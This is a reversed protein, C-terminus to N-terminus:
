STWTAGGAAGAAATGPALAAVAAAAGAGAREVEAGEAEGLRGLGAREASALVEAAPAGAALAAGAARYWGLLAGLMALAKRPPTTRDVPHYASQRLFGERLLRAAALLLREADQLADMGVLQAIDLLERERQLLRLAEARLPGFEPGAEREFWPALAAADLSWSRGWDVAPFHRRHALDASLAWVAGTARLFAQTVPESFDGGPPSIAGAVTVSGEGAGSLPVARGAREYLQAVRTGLSTPYGEEGPMEELRASIERLAEAWRSTSDVLLAV